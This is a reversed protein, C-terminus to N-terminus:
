KILHIRNLGFFQVTGGKFERVNFGALCHPIQIAADSGNGKEDGFFKATGAFHDADLNHRFGDFIRLFIGAPVADCIGAEVGTSCFFNNWFEDRCVAAFRGFRIDDDNVRRAFAAVPCEEVCDDAHRWFTDNIYAAVRCREGAVHLHQCRFPILHLLGPRAIHERHAPM